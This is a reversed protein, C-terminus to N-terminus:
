KVYEVNELDEFKEDGTLFRVGRFKAIVYGICDVYSLDRNKLLLRFECAREIVDDSIEVCFELFRDYYDEAQKKGYKHLLGYYLEMLNMKTTIIAVGESYPGYNENGAIIEFFPYSDFFLTRVEGM